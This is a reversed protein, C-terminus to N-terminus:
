RLVVLKGISVTGGSLVRIYYIGNSLTRGKMDRLAVSVPTVGMPLSTLVTESIKRYATTFLQIRVEDGARAVTVNVKV